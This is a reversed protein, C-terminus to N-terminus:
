GAAAPPAAGAVKRLEGIGTAELERVKTELVGSLESTRFAQGERWSHRLLAVILDSFLVTTFLARGYIELGMEMLEFVNMLGGRFAVLKMGLLDITFLAITVFLAGAASLLLSRRLIPSLVPNLEARTHPRALRRAFLTPVLIGVALLGFGLVLLVNGGVQNLLVFVVLTLLCLLPASVVAIWGPVASEPAFQKVAIASRIAGALVALVAPMLKLFWIVAALLGFVHAVGQQLVAEEGGAPEGMRLLARLPVLAVLFPIAFGIAWGLRLRRYSIRVDHWAALALGCALCLVVKAAQLLFDLFTAFGSDCAENEEAGAADALFRVTGVAATVALFVFAVTLSSRRWALYDQAQTGVVPRPVREGDTLFSREAPTAVGVTYDARTARRFHAPFGQLFRRWGPAPDSAAADM